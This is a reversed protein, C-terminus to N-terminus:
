GCRNVRNENTREGEPIMQKFIEELVNVCISNGAQKYLQTDSNVKQAKEFDEDSFGMLRWCEKPTLKRIRILFWENNIKHIFNHLKSDSEIKNDLRTVELVGTCEFKHSTVGKDYRALISSSIEEVLETQETCLDVGTQVEHTIKGGFVLREVLEKARESTIYYKDDVSSEIFDKFYHNLKIPEPFRYYYDGLISVMFCRDRSQPIGYNKANLDQIYNSYGKANLFEIWDEFDRINSEGHVQPVNEMLLVQPLTKIENLLREVEWLLGSRTGSGKSMGKQLGVVSLDTCPFSYTLLYTFRDTDVIGLDEGKTKTIDIPEFNTGHIANYSAVPYKDFEVLRYHEFNAGINRLAMAQSGVGGFLEILRIPKDIKFTSSFLDALTLQQM